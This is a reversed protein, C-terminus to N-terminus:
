QLSGDSDILRARKLEQWYISISTARGVLLEAAGGGFTALVSLSEPTRQLTQNAV